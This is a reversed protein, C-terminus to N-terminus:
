RVNASKEQCSTGAYSALSLTAKGADPVDSELRLLLRCRDDSLTIRIIGEGRYHKTDRVHMEVIVARFHGAPIDVEERGLVVVTTPNRAVDFHRNLTLTSDTPLAITRLLYLFSLEDLPADSTLVGAAGSQSTWRKEDAFMDVEDDTRKLLHREHSSYRLSAMRVPDLWSANKDGAHIFGVSGQMDSHLIWTAVGRLEAGGEIWLTGRGSIGGRVKGTYELREGPAFPLAAQAGASRLTLILFFLVIRTM